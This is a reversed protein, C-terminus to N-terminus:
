RGLLRRLITFIITTPTSSESSSPPTSGYEDAGIDNRTTVAHGEIDTTLPFDSDSFVDTGADVLGSDSANLRFDNTSSDAFTVSVSTDTCPTSTDSCHTNDDTTTESGDRHFDNTGSNDILNNRFRTVDATGNWTTDRIGYTASDVITNNYIYFEQGARRDIQIGNNMDYIINSGIFLDCGSTTNTQRVGYPAAGSFTGNSHHILNGEVVLDSDCTEVYVGPADNGGGTAGSEIEIYSVTFPTENVRVVGLGNTSTIKAADTGGPTGCNGSGSAATLTVMNGNANFGTVNCSDTITGSLHATHPGSLPTQTVLYAVWASCTTYDCGSSCITKVTAGTTAGGGGCSASAGPTPTPTPSPTPRADGEWVRIHDFCRISETAPDTSGNSYNGGVWMGDFNASSTGRLSVNEASIISTGDVFVEYEGDSSSATNLKLYVYIEVWQNKVPTGASSNIAIESGCNAASCDVTFQYASGSSNVHLNVQPGTEDYARFTKLNAPWDFTSGVWMYYAVTIEAKDFSATKRVYFPASEDVDHDGCASHTGETPAPSTTNYSDPGTEENWYADNANDLSDDVLLTQAVASIPLLLYASLILVLHLRRM